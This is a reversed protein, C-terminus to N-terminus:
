RLLNFAEAIRDFLLPFNNFAERSLNPVIDKSFIGKGSEITRTELLSSKEKNILKGNVKSEIEPQSFSLGYGDKNKLELFEDAFYYEIYFNDLVDYKEKDEPLPLFLAASKKHNCIKIESNQQNILFFRPLKEYAKKGAQDRDYIGIVKVSSDFRVAELMRNVSSAGGAGGQNERSNEDFIDSSKIVFPMEREKFLKKWATNMIEVDTKGEVFVIDKNNENIIQLLKQNQLNNNEVENHLEQILNKYEKGIKEQIQSLGMEEYFSEKIKQNDKDNSSIIIAETGKEGKVIRYCTVKEDKLSIFAPSHSTLMIQSNKSYENLFQSAINLQLSYEVSNEPEEFGWIFFKKPNLSIFALLSPIYRAQIGDGRLSLPIWNEDHRSISKKTEAWKTNVNLSQFLNKREDQLRLDSYIGTAKEFEEQLESVLGSLETNLKNVSKELDSSRTPQNEIFTDKLNTLIYSFFSKDRIAPIYEFQIRNLFQSLMRRSTGQSYKFSINNTNKIRREIDDSIEPIDNDRYWTKTVTFFPPLSNKYNDPCVFEVDIRIFQRGKISESRVETLRELCFDQPFDLPKEWDIQNNFFLNLAKLINSKGVDNRGSFINIESIIKLEIHHISRLYRIEISNILKM